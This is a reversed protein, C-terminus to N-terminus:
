WRSSFCEATASLQSRLLAALEANEAARRSFLDDALSIQTLKQNQPFSFKGLPEGSKVATGKYYAADPYKPNRCKSAQYTLM